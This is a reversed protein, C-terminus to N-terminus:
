AAGALVHDAILGAADPVGRYGPFSNVDVVIPGIESEIVDIGWLDLGFAHACRRGLAELAPDLTIPRGATLFSRSSFPKRLGRVTEGVGVIKLDAPGGVLRQAFVAEPYRAAEPLADPTLVTVVDAGHYGRPPKVVLPAWPLMGLQDPRVAVYSRPTPLGADQLIAAAVVKDKAHRMAVPANVVRAGRGELAGALGLALETDSKVLYLDADVQLRDVRALSREPCRVAVTAGRRRLEAGLARILSSPRDMSRPELWLEIRM